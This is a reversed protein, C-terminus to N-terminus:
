SQRCLHRWIESQASAWRCELLVLADPHISPGLGPDSFYACFDFVEFLKEFIDVFTESLGVDFDAGKTELFDGLGLASITWTLCFDGRGFPGSLPSRGWM